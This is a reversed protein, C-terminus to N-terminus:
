YFVHSLSFLKKVNIVGHLQTALDNVSIANLEAGPPNLIRDLLQADVSLALLNVGSYDPLKLVSVV